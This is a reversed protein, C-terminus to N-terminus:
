NIDKGILYQLEEFTKLYSGKHDIINKKNNIYAETFDMFEMVSINRNQFNRTYKEFANDLQTEYEKNQNYLLQELALLQRHINEVENAITIEHHSLLTANKELELEARRINGQNKNFLPLDMAIGIGFFNTMINGGRDYNLNLTIDPTKEAKEVLLQQKNIEQQTLLMRYDSRHELAIASLEQLRLLPHTIHELSNSIEIDNRNTLGMYTKIKQIKESKDIKIFALDNQFNIKEAQIRVYEMESVNGSKWQKEYAAALNEFLTIQSSLLNEESQLIQLETLTQRLDYKLNRLLEQFTIIENEVHLQQLRVRKKRKGATEIVQELEVAIQQHRGRNRYIYPLTEATPNHWLNIESVTITPNHWLKAQIVEAEAQSIHYKQALIELNRELFDQEIKEKSLVLPDNKQATSQCVSLVSLFGYTFILRKM